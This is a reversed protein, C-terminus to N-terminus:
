KIAELMLKKRVKDNKVKEAILEKLEDRDKLFKEADDWNYFIEERCNECRFIYTIGDGEFNENDYTAYEEGEDVYFYSKEIGTRVM